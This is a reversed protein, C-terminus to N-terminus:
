GFWGGVTRILVYYAVVGALVAAAPRVLSLLTRPLSVKFHHQTVLLCIHVPSLIMGMYGFGYALSTTALLRAYAPDPGLLAVVIPFSIGVFGVALGTSMGSILPLAVIVVLAPLGWHEFDRRMVEGLVEGAPLRAEMFAGYVRVAAVMLLMSLTRKSLMLKRWQAAPLPRKRQLLWMAAVLGVVLPLFRNLEAVTLWAALTGVVRYLRGPLPIAVVQLLPGFISLLVYGGVVVLIPSLLPLLPLRGGAPEPARPQRPIRRLIFFGGAAVALVALPFQLLMFVPLRLGVHSVALLVGPYLPWWYEWVHRFWYNIQTKHIGDLSDDHDCDDVLPASFIAGGPMPLFGIVAPLLAFSLHHSVRARVATVLETMVGAHSMQLSLWIVLFTVALLGCDHGSTLRRGAILGARLPTHGCWFALCVTAALVSPLLKRTVGNAVILLLLSGMVKTIVPAGMLYDYAAQM